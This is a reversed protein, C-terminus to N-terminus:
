TCEAIGRGRPAEGGSGDGEREDEEERSGDCIRSRNKHRSTISPNGTCRSLQSHLLILFKNASSAQSNSIISLSPLSSIFSSNKLSVTPTNVVQDPPTGTSSNICIEHTVSSSLILDSSSSLYNTRKASLLSKKSKGVGVM